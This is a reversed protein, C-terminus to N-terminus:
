NNVRVMAPRIVRDKLKYGKQMVMTVKGSEYEDNDDTLVAHHFNPDFDEGLPDIEELGSKGLVETFQKFILDMGKVYAEDSCEQALAREFNDLVALLDTMIKENAYAYVDSKEKEVRRKYNQFDAMLRLYRANLSEEEPSPKATEEAKAEEPEEDEPEPESAIGPDDEIDIEIGDEQEQTGATEEMDDPM